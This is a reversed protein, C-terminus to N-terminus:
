KIGDMADWVEDLSWACPREFGRLALLYLKDGRLKALDPDQGNIVARERTTSDMRFLLPAMKIAAARREELTELSRMRAEAEDWDAFVILMLPDQFDQEPAHTGNTGNGNRARRADVRGTSLRHNDLARVATSFKYTPRNTEGGADPETNRLARILTQRDIELEGAIANISHTKM